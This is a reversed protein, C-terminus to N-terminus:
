SAHRHVTRTSESAYRILGTQIRNRFRQTMRDSGRILQCTGDALLGLIRHVPHPQAMWKMGYEGVHRDARPRGTEHEVGNGSSGV